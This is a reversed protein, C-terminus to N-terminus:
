NKPLLKEAPEYTVIQNGDIATFINLTSPDVKGDKLEATIKFEFNSESPKLYETYLILYQRQLALKREPDKERAAKEKAEKIYPVTDPHKATNRNMMKTFFIAELKNDKTEQKILQSEISDITYYKSFGKTLFDAIYRKMVAEDSITQAVPNTEPRNSTDDTNVPQAPKTCGAALTICLMAIVYVAIKPSIRM